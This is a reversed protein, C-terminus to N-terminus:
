RIVSPFWPVNQIFPTMKVCKRLKMEGIKSDMMNIYMYYMMCYMMNLSSLGCFASCNDFILQNLRELQYKAKLAKGLCLGSM